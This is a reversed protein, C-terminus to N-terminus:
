AAGDEAAQAEAAAVAVEVWEEAHQYHTEGLPWRSEHRVYVFSGNNPVSALRAGGSLLLRLFAGDEGSNTNAFSHTADWLARRYMLTGGHVGLTFIESALSESARWLRGSGDTMDRVCELPMGTIHAEGSLLPAVQRSLRDPAYEDDDDWHCIIDADQALAVALNRKAGITARCPGAALTVVQVDDWLNPLTSGDANPETVLLLRKNPYDQAWFGNLARLLFRWRAATTPMICTILPLRTTLEGGDSVEPQWLDYM